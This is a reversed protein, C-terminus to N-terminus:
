NSGKRKEAPQNDSFSVFSKARSKSSGEKSCSMLNNPGKLCYCQRGVRLEPKSARPRRDAAQFALSIPEMHTVLVPTLIVFTVKPFQVVADSLAL